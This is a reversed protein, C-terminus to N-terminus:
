EYNIINIRSNANFSNLEDDIISNAKEIKLQRKEINQSVKNKIDELNYLKVNPLQGVREDVDRPFALDFILITQNPSIHEPRVIANPSSTATILVDTYEMFAKMEDFRFAKCNYKEAMLQAKEFYRNGLFISCAGKANLFRIIDENLKNIGLMTILAHNLPIQEQILCEIVAQSHSMAGQSIGSETRVRKGVRLATQFLKHLSASLQFKECAQQYCLKVQGQIATEGVLSSQLGSVVSFLHAAVQVPIEGSGWYIEIRDCTQLLVYATNEPLKLEEFFQEREQLSTDVQSKSIYKIM